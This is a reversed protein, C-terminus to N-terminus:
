CENSLYIRLCKECINDCYISECKSPGSVRIVGYAYLASDASNLPRRKSSWWWTVTVRDCQRIFIWSKKRSPLTTEVPCAVECVLLNSSSGFQMQLVTLLLHDTLYRCEKCIYICSMYHTHTHPLIRKLIWEWLVHLTNWTNKHRKWGNTVVSSCKWSERMNCTRVAVAPTQLSRNQLSCYWRSGWHWCQTLTRQYTLIHMVRHTIAWRLM